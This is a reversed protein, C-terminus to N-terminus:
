RLRDRRQEMDAEPVQEISQIGERGDDGDRGPAGLRGITGPRGRRRVTEDGCFRSPDGGFGGYGNVGGAGPTGGSRGQGASLNAEILGEMRGSYRLVLDGGNGGNGGDGGNGGIGGNGGRGGHGGGRECWLFGSESRRGKGGMGGHGANGGDQGDIGNEGSFDVTLNALFDVCDIHLSPASAGDLGADGHIGDSGNGGRGGPYEGRAGDRNKPPAFQRIQVQDFRHRRKPSIEGVGAISQAVIELDGAISIIAEDFNFPRFM